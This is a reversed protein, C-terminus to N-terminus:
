INRIIILNIKTTTRIKFDIMISSINSGNLNTLSAGSGSFTTATAVGANGFHINSGVSIFDDVDVGSGSFSTATVIGANAINNGSLNLQDGSPIEQIQNASSNAILPFRDAM